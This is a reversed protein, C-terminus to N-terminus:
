KWSGRHNARTTGGWEALSGSPLFWKVDLRAVCVFSVDDEARGVYQSGYARGKNRM